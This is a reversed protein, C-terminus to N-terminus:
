IIRGGTGAVEIIGYSISSYKGGEMIKFGLRKFETSNNREKLVVRKRAVRCAELVTETELSESASLEKLPRISDSSNLTNRFMPDFYIIDVSADPMEKLVALHDACVTTIRSSVAILEDWAVDKERSKLRPPKLRSFSDIGERVLLHIFPSSEVALIKGKDGVALAAILSDSALGMTADLFYDGEAPNLAQLFRDGLGRRINILRLLAMSPHFFLNGSQHEIILQNKTIRLLPLFKDEPGAGARVDEPILCIGYKERIVDAKCALNQNSLRFYIKQKSKETLM